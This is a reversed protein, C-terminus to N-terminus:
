FAKQTIQLQRFADQGFSASCVRCTTSDTECSVPQCAQSLGSLLCVDAGGCDADTACPRLQTQFERLNPLQGYTQGDSHYIVDLFVQTADLLCLGEIVGSYSASGSGDTVIHSDLTPVCNSGHCVEPIVLAREESPCLPNVSEPGFTRYFLSYVADPILGDLRVTVDTNGQRCRMTSRATASEWQGWTVGLLAGGNVDHLPTDVPTSSNPQSVHGGASVITVDSNYASVSDQRDPATQGGTAAALVIAVALGLHGVVTKGSKRDKRHDDM